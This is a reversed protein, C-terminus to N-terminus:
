SKKKKKAPKKIEKKGTKERLLKSLRSKLRAAKNAKIVNGKVAKDLASYVEPLNNGGAKLKRIAKKYVQALSQNVSRRRLNQRLAKKASKTVPM